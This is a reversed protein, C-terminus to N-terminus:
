RGAGHTSFPLVASVRTGQNQAAGVTCVGGLEEARERMSTLGVGSQFQGPLGRGNDTITIVLSPLSQEETIAFRM